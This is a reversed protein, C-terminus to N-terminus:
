LASNTLEGTNEEEEKLPSQAFTSQVGLVMQEITSQRPM